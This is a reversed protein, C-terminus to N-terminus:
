YKIHAQGNKTDWVYITGSVCGSALWKDDRSLSLSRIWDQHESYVDICTMDRWLRVSRDLSCSYMLSSDHSLFQLGTVIETHEKMRGLM